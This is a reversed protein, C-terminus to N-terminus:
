RASISSRWGTASARRRWWALLSGVAVKQTIPTTRIFFYIVVLAVVLLGAYAVWQGRCRSVLFALSFLLVALIMIPTFIDSVLVHTTHYSDHSFIQGLVPGPSSVITALLARTAFWRGTRGRGSLSALRVGVVVTGAGLLLYSILGIDHGILNRAGNAQSYHSGLMSISYEALRYGGPYTIMLVILVIISQLIAGAAVAAVLVPVPSVTRNSTSQTEM